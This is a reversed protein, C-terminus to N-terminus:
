GTRSAAEGLGSLLDSNFAQWSSVEVIPGTPEIRELLQRRHEPFRQRFRNLKRGTLGSASALVERLRAKPDAVTEVNRWKPLDLNMHGNPNGAVRRICAEDLMLWAETMRIPVVPVCPVDPMVAAVARQIEQHRPGRGANDADRHIAVLEYQGGMDRIAELKAQVTRRAPQPLREVLPDTVAVRYGHDSAIRRIHFTIGSDSTGEGLFLVRLTM